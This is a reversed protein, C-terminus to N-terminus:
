YYIQAGGNDYIKRRDTTINESHIYNMSISVGKLQKVLIENKLVNLSGFYIYSNKAIKSPDLPFGKFSTWDHSGLLFVRNSDAYISGTNKVNYLWNASSIELDNFRPIDFTNNFSISDTSSEAIQYIFGIQYLFFIVFYVSLVGLSKRVDENIWTVKIKQSIKRFTVMGGIICFPALFILTIHYIRTMNLAIAFFPVSVAAFLISLNIISFAAYEKEFRMKKYKFLFIIIGTIIFLQNLYNMIKNIQHLINYTDTSMLKLGEAAEPNLFDTQTSSVIHNGIRVIANFAFSHSIYFYWTLTFVVFLIIVTLSIARDKEKIKSLLPNNNLKNNKLKIFKSYFGNIMKQMGSNESLGLLLWGVILVSIFIYSLGYHSIALSIGFIIILISRKMKEMTKDITLLILSVLFLEAIQQRALSLMESYFTYISIFFFCALFAIKGNTQKQYVRYLGLPVLSFLLPYIIKFIWALEMGSIKVLIPALMVISLTANTAYPITSDWISNTIVLNSTYYENFIDWGWIYNSILSNHFLLSITIVFVALPYLKEPIFKNFGILLVTLSIIIIMFFILINIHYFNDLYRGFIALFPIMCLFLAPPSLIDKINIFSPNAIHKDKIYCLICLILVVASITIILPMTSIPKSVGLFFYVTNMILGISFLTAISLGVTYLLTEINGLKHLKLIRLIVIGPVFILYLFGILQRIIPIQFNIADLGITGWLALQIALIVRLFTKIEWDNMQLPNRIQM